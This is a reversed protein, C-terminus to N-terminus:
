SPFLRPRVHRDLLAALPALAAHSPVVADLYALFRPVDALYKPKADRHHLRAFIGMVKLHRQVGTLAVDARFRELAPVPLGASAARAHWQALWADAQAEPWSHFADRLLSAPDYAIPGVVADQFDLVAVGGEVPMLNRLMFDRHVFVQPQALMAAVLYAQVSDWGDREDESLTVGLHRGLFWDPFLALERRLMAEDFAPLALPPVVAQVRALQDFAAHMLADPELRALAQLCTEGGLDELLLFGREVDRALVHPVRVGHMELLDRVHLWPQVDELDPPSDMVIRSIGLATGRWYSRFGADMSARDLVLTPDGTAERAFALRADDRFRTDPASASTTSSANSM